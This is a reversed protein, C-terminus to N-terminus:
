AIENGCLPCARGKIQTHYNLEAEKVKASKNDALVTREQIRQLRQELDRMRKSTEAWTQFAKTVPGFDPPPTSAEKTEKLEELLDALAICSNSIKVSRKALSFLSAIEDSHEQADEWHNAKVKELLSVLDAKQQDAAKWTKHLTYLRNFDEPREQQPSLKDLEEQVDELREEYIAKREQAARVAGAINSLTTDIVSLDVVSNLRRSVEPASESFWFPSDHQSQFNIENVELLSTIDSPVSFGFAKYVTDDLQYENGEKGKSRVLTHSKNESCVQLTVTAQREGEKVFEDGALNNRCVWQLARLVASKGKDTPGKITTIAPSFSVVTDEHVQFNELTIRKLIMGKM